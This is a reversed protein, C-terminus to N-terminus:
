GHYISSHYKSGGWKTFILPNLKGHHLEFYESQIQGWSWFVQPLNTFRNSVAQENRM